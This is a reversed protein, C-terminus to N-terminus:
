LHHKLMDLCVEIVFHKLQDCVVAEEDQTARSVSFVKTHGQVSVRVQLLGLMSTHVLNVYM